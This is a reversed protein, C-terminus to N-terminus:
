PLGGSRVLRCQQRMATTFDLSIEALRCDVKREKRDPVWVLIALVLGCFVACFTLQTKM